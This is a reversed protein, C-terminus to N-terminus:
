KEECGVQGQLYFVHKFSFNLKALTHINKYGPVCLRCFCRFAAFMALDKRLKHMAALRTVHEVNM